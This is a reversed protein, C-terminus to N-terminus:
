LSLRFRREGSESAKKQCYEAYTTEARKALPASQQRKAARFSERFSAEIVTPAAGLAALFVACLRCLEASWWREESREVLAEAERIAELSESARGALHLAEAKLALWM